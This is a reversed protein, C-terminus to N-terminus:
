TKAIPDSNVRNLLALQGLAHKIEASLLAKSPKDSQLAKVKWVIDYGPKIDELLDRATERMLRKMRNRTTALRYGSVPVVFAWRTVDQSNQRYSLVLTKTTLRSGSKIINHIERSPLRYAKLLM